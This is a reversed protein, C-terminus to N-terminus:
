AALATGAGLESWAARSGEVGLFTGLVLGTLEGHRECLSAGRDRRHEDACAVLVTRALLEETLTSPPAIVGRRRAEERGGAFIKTLLATTAELSREPDVGAVAHSHILHMEILLPEAGLAAFLGALALDVQGPWTAAAIAERLPAALAAFGLEVSHALCAQVNDFAEYFSTRAM